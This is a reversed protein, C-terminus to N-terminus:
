SLIDHTVRIHNEVGKVPNGVKRSRPWVELNHMLAHVPLGDFVPGQRVAKISKIRIQDFM